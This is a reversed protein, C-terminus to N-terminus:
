DQQIEEDLEEEQTQHLFAEEEETVELIEVLRGWDGFIPEPEGYQCYVDWVTGELPDEVGRDLSANWITRLDRRRSKVMAQRTAYVNFGKTLNRYGRYGMGRRTACVNFGENLWLTRLTRALEAWGEAGVGDRIFLADWVRHSTSAVLTSFANVAQDSCLTVQGFRLRDVQEDQINARQSLVSLFPEYLNEVQVGVLHGDWLISAEVRELLLFGLLSVSFFHSGIMSASLDVREESGVKPHFRECILEFLDLHHNFRDDLLELLGVLHRVKDIKEEAITDEVTWLSDEEEKGFPCARRIVKAWVSAKQLVDVTFSHARALNLISPADLFTLLHEVLDPTWLFVIVSGEAM